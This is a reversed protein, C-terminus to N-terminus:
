PTESTTLELQPGETGEEDIYGKLTWTVLSEGDEGNGPLLSCGFGSKTYKIGSPTWHLTIEEHVTKVNTYRVGQKPTQSGIKTTCGVSPFKLEIQKELECITHVQAHGNADTKGTLTYICGNTAIEVEGASSTCGKYSPRFTLSSTPGVITAEWGAEKCEVVLKGGFVFHERSGGAPDPEATVIAPYLSATVDHTVAQAPGATLAGLAALALLAGALAKLTRIMLM